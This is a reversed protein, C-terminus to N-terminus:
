FPYKTGPTIFEVELGVAQKGSMLRYVKYMGDGFGGKAFPIETKIRKWRLVGVTQLAFKGSFVGEM